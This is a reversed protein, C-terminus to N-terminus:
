TGRINNHAQYNRVGGWEEGEAGKAVQQDWGWADPESKFLWYAMLRYGKEMGCGLRRFRRQIINYYHIYTTLVYIYFLFAIVLLYYLTNMGEYKEGM